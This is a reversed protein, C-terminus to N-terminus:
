LNNILMARNEDKMLYHYQPQKSGGGISFLIRINKKHAKTVFPKLASLDRTFNGLSDPNLFWLNIHTLNKYTKSDPDKMAESLSYYGVIKFSSQGNTLASCAVISLLIFLIKLNM